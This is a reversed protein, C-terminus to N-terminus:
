LDRETQSKTVAFYQVIRNIINDAINEYWDNPNYETTSIGQHIANLSGKEFEGKLFQILDQKL